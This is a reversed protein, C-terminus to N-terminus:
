FPWDWSIHAGIYLSSLPECYVEATSEDMLCRLDVILRLLLCFLLTLFRSLLSVADLVNFLRCSSFPAAALWTVNPELCQWIPWTSVFVLDFLCSSGDTGILSLLIALLSGPRPLKLGEALVSEAATRM